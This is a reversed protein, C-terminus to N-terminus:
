IRKCMALHNQMSAMDAECLYVVSSVAPHEVQTGLSDRLLQEQAM